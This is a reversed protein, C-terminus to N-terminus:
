NRIMDQIEQLTKRKTEPLCIYIFLAGIFYIVALIWVFAPEISNYFPGLIAAICVISILYVCITIASAMAKIRASFIEGLIVFPIPGLGVACIIFFSVVSVTTVIESHELRFCVGISVLSLGGGITSALLLIRRGIKDIIISSFACSLLQILSIVFLDAIQNELKGKFIYFVALIVPVIQQLLMLGCTTCLSKFIYKKKYIDRLDTYANISETINKKTVILENIIADTSYKRILGLSIEADKSRDQSLLWHYSEPLWWDIILLFIFAVIFVTLNMENLTMHCSMEYTVLMGLSTFTGIMMGLFGRNKDEAIEGLYLPMITLASGMGLGCTFRGLLLYTVYESFYVIALGLTTFLTAVVLFEKRGRKVALHGAILASIVAGILITSTVWVEQHQLLPM